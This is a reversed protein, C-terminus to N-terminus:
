GLLARLLLGSAGAVLFSTLTGVLYTEAFDRNELEKFRAVSKAALVFGLASWEGLWVLTLMAMRELIGIVHGARAGSVKTGTRLGDLVASVIASGGNVNFAYLGVIWALRELSPPAFRSLEVGSATIWACAAALVALHALQDLVFWLLRRGFREETWVKLADIGVHTLAILVLALVARLGPCFPLLVLAQVLLVELGHALLWRPQKRKGEVMARTQFVFDALLHGAVFLAWILAHPAQASFDGM